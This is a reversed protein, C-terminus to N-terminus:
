LDGVRHEKIGDQLYQHWPDKKNDAVWKYGHKDYSHQASTLASDCSYQRCRSSDYPLIFFCSEPIHRRTTEPRDGQHHFCYACRYHRDAEAFSCPQIDWIASLKMSEVTIVQFILLTSRKKSVRLVAVVWRQQLHIAYFMLSGIIGTTWHKNYGINLHKFKIKPVSPEKNGPKQMHTLHQDTTNCWSELGQRLTFKWNRCTSLVVMLLQSTGRIRSTGVEYRPRSVRQRSQNKHNKETWGSYHRPRLIPWSRKRGFGKWTM